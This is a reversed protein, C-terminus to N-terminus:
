LLKRHIEAEEENRQKGLEDNLLEQSPEGTGLYLVRMCVYMCVYMQTHIYTHIYSRVCAGLVQFENRQSTNVEGYLKNELHLCRCKHAQTCPCVCLSWCVQFLPIFRYFTHSQLGYPRRKFVSSQQQLMFTAISMFSFPCAQM